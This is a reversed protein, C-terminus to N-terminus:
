SRMTQMSKIEKDVYLIGYHFILMLVISKAKKVTGIM